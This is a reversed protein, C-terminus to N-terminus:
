SNPVSVLRLEGNDEIVALAESGNLAQVLDALINREVMPRLAEPFHPAATLEALHLM